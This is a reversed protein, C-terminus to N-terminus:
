HGCTNVGLAIAETKLNKTDKLKFGDCAAQNISCYDDGCIYSYNGTCHCDIKKQVKVVGIRMPIAFKHICFDKNICVDKPTWNYKVLPCDKVVGIVKKYKGMKELNSYHNMVTEFLFRSYRFDDCSDRDVTCYSLGCKYGYEGNCKTPGCIVRYKKNSDYFGKCEKETNICLEITKISLTCEIVLLLTFIYIKNM